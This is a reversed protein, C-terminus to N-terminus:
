AALAQRVTECVLEPEKTIEDWGFRYVRCGHNQAERDRRRDAAMQDLRAHYRRGDGEVIVQQPLYVLDVRATVGSRWTFSHQRVPRQSIGAELVRILRRELVSEPPVYGPGREALVRRLTAMGPKGPRRLSDYLRQVDTISCTRTVHAQDLSQGLRGHSARSALDFFTRAVTTVPLGEVHTIHDDQLDTSQIVTMGGDRRPHAGNAVTLVIEDPPFLTLGHLAAAAEHSVVSEPGLDLHALWLRRRWSDPWGPLAYVGPVVMIWRGARVRRAILGDDGGLALVQVRTFLGWQRVALEEIM